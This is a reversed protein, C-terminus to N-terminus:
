NIKKFDTMVENPISNIGFDYIKDDIMKVQIIFDVSSIDKHDFLKRLLLRRNSIEFYLGNEKNMPQLTLIETEFLMPEGDSLLNKVLFSISKIRKKIKEHSQSLEEISPSILNNMEDYQLYRVTKDADRNWETSGSKKKITQNDFFAWHSNDILRHPFEPDSTYITPINVGDKSSASLLEFKSYEKEHVVIRFDSQGIVLRFTLNNHLFQNGIFPEGVRYDVKQFHLWKSDKYELGSCSITFLALLIPLIKKM